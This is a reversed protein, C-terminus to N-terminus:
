TRDSSVVIVHFNGTGNENKGGGVRRGNSPTTISELKHAVASLGVTISKWKTGAFTFYFVNTTAGRDALIKNM